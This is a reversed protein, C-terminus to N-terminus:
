DLITQEINESSKRDKEIKKKIFYTIVNTLMNRFWGVNGEKFYDSEFWGKQRWYQYDQEFDTGLIDKVLLRMIKFYLLAWFSPKIWKNDRISTIFEKSLHKIETKREKINFTPIQAGFRGVVSFGLKIATKELYMLVKDLGSGMTTSIVLAYKDLFQPRHVVYALHDLFNKMLGTVNDIYVPSSFIIGDAIEIKQVIESVIESHPCSEKGLRVCNLCGKCLDLDFNDLFLYEFDIDEARTLHKEFLEVISFTNKKRPSGIIALIKM